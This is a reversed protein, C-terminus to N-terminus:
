AIQLSKRASPSHKDVALYHVAGSAEDRGAWTWWRCKGCWYWSLGTNIFAITPAQGSCHQCFIAVYVDTM